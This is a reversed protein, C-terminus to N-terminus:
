FLGRLRSLSCGCKGWKVTLEPKGRVVVRGVQLNHHHRQPANTSSPESACGLAGEIDPGSRTALM